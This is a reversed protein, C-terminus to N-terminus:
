AILSYAYKTFNSTVVAEVSVLVLAAKRRESPTWELYDIGLEKIRRLMDTRLSVLPVVLVTTGAEPLTCPLM